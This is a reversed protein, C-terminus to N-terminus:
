FALELFRTIVALYTARLVQQVQCHLGRLVGQVSESINDQVWHEPIGAAAYDRANWGELFAGRADRHVTPTLLLVDPVRMPVVNLIGTRMTRPNSKREGYDM